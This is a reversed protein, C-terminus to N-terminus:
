RIRELEFFVGNYMLIVTNADKIVFANGPNIWADGQPTYVQVVEVSDKRIGMDKLHAFFEVYFDDETYTNHRYEPKQCVKRDFMAREATYVVKKGIYSKITQQSMGHTRAYAVVRKVQWQGYFPENKPACGAM